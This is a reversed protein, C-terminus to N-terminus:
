TTETADVTTTLVYTGPSIHLDFTYCICFLRQEDPQLTMGTVETGLTEQELGDSVFWDFGPDPFVLIATGGSWSGPIHGAGVAMFLGFRYCLGCDDAKGNNNGLYDSNIKITFTKMDNTSAQIWDPLTDWDRPPAGIDKKYTGDILPSFAWNFDRDESQPDAHYQIQWDMTGDCDTDFPMGFNEPPDDIPEPTVITIVLNCELDYTKTITLPDWGFYGDEEQTFDFLEGGYGKYAETIPDLEHPALDYIKTEIGTYTNTTFTVDVPISARNWIWQKYCFTEGGPAAEPITYEIPVNYNHWDGPEGIVVAQEVEATTKVQGFYPILAATAIMSGAVLVALIM